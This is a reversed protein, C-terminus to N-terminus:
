KKDLSWCSNLSLINSATDAHLERVTKNQRQARLDEQTQLVKALKNHKERWSLCETSKEKREKEVQRREDEAERQAQSSRKSEEEAAAVRRKM